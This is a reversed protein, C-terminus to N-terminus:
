THHNFLPLLQYCASRRAMDRLLRLPQNPIVAASALLAAEAFHTSITQGDATIAAQPWNRWVAAIDNAATDSGIFLSNQPPENCIVAYLGSEKYIQQQLQQLYFQNNTLLYIRQAEQSLLRAALATFNDSVEVTITDKRWCPFDCDLGRMLSALSFAKGNAIRPYSGYPYLTGLNYDSAFIRCGAMQAKTITKAFKGRRTSLPLVSLKKSGLQLWFPEEKKIKLRFGLSILAIDM